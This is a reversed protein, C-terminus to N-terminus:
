QASHKHMYTHNDPFDTCGIMEDGKGGRKGEWGRGRRGGEMERGGRGLSAVGGMVGVWGGGGMGVLLLYSFEDDLIKFRLGM